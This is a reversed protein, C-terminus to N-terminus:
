RQTQTLRQLEEKLTKNEQELIIVGETVNQSQERLSKVNFIEHSKSSQRGGEAQAMDPYQSGYLFAMKQSLASWSNDQLVKLISLKRLLPHM